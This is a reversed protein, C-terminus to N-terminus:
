SDITFESLMVLCLNLKGFFCVSDRDLEVGLLFYNFRSKERGHARVTNNEFTYVMRDLQSLFEM